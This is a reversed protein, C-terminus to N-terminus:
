MKCRDQFGLNCGRGQTERQFSVEEPIESLACLEARIFQACFTRYTEKSLLTLFVHFHISFSFAVHVPSLPSALAETSLFLRFQFLSIIL